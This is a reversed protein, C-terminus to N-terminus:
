QRCSAVVKVLMAMFGNYNANKGALRKNGRVNELVGLPGTITHREAIQERRGFDVENASPSERHCGEYQNGSDSTSQSSKELLVFQSGRETIGGKTGHLQTQCLQFGTLYKIDLLQHQNHPMQPIDGRIM